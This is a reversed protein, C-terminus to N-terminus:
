GGFDPRWLPDLCEPPIYDRPEALFLAAAALACGGDASVVHGRDGFLAVRAGPLRRRLREAWEVPTSADFAGALILIPATSDVARRERPEGAPAWWAACLHLLAERAAYIQFADDSRGGAHVADRAAYAYTERCEVSLALGEAVDPAGFFPGPAYDALGRFQGRAAADILAPARRADRRRDMLNGLAEVTAAANMLVPDQDPHAAPITPPNDIANDLVADLAAGLDPFRRRCPDDAACAAVLRTLAARAAAAKDDIFNVDLPYAGDLAVARIRGPHRRLAELAVRTGYSVGFLNAQRFGYARVMEAVDDAIQPTSYASLDVGGAQLRDRCRRAARFELAQVRDTAAAGAANNALVDLEPCNMSPRSEGVGRQEFFIVPGSELFRRALGVLREGMADAPERRPFASAGPGGEIFVTPAGRGAGRMLLVPIAIERSELRDPREATLMTACEFRIDSEEPATAWCPTPRLAAAGADMVWLTAFLLLLARMALRTHARRHRRAVRSGGGAGQRM